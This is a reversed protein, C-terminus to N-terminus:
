ERRKYEKVVNMTEMCDRIEVKLAASLADCVRVSSPCVAIHPLAISHHLQFSLTHYFHTHTHKHTDPSPHTSPTPVLVPIPPIAALNAM